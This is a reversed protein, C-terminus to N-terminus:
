SDSSLSKGGIDITTFAENVIEQTRRDVATQDRKTLEPYTFQDLEDLVVSLENRLFNVEGGDLVAIHAILRRVLARLAAVEGTLRAIHKRSDLTNAM